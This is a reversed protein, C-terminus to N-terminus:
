WAPNQRAPESCRLLCVYIGGVEWDRVIHRGTQQAFSRIDTSGTTADSAIRVLDGAPLTALIRRLKFLHHPCKLGLADIYHLRMRESIPHAGTQLAQMGERRGGDQVPPKGQLAM